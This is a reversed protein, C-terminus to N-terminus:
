SRTSAGRATHTHRRPAKVIATLRPRVAISSGSSPTTSSDVVRAPSPAGNEPVSSDEEPATSLARIAYRISWAVLALMAPTGTVITVVLFGEVSGQLLAVLRLTARALLYLGWVVSEVGFVRKFADTERFSRPFPYWACAFAGALPRRLAASALFALGWAANALVPQALYVIASHSVLGVVSQVAVFALSLRLLLGDRGARRELVYVALSAAAAAAIGVGLGALRLGAYFAGLPLFGERLFGPLGALLVARFTPATM